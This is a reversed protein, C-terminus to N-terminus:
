PASALVEICLGAPSLLKAVQGVGYILEAQCWGELAVGESDALEQFLGASGVEFGCRLIGTAPPHARAFCDAGNVGVYEILEMRGLLNDPAGLLHLDLITGPPLGAAMEIAEGSLKHALIDQLGFLEQYFRVERNVDSVIVVFSTLAAFGKESYDVEFGESLVEILVLNLADHVPLQVERARIGDIEYEGIESRFRYGSALLDKVRDPMAICNADINKAGLDTSAAGARAAPQPDVFRVFHLRGTTAGPTVLLLQEAIQGAPVGWLEALCSDPGERMGAVELGLQDVWLSRVADM